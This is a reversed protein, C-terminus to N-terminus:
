PTRSNVLRVWSGKNAMSRMAYESPSILEGSRKARRLGSGSLSCSQWRDTAGDPSMSVICANWATPASEARRSAESV